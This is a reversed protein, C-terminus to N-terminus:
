NSKQDAASGGSFYQLRGKLELEQQSKTADMQVKGQWTSKATLSAEFVPLRFEEVQFHSTSLNRGNEDFLQVSYNGLKATAPIM